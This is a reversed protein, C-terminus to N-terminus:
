PVCPWDSSIIRVTDDLSISLGYYTAKDDRGESSEAHGARSLM